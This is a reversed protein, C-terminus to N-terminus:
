INGSQADLVLQENQASESKRTKRPSQLTPSVPSSTARKRSKSSMVSPINCFEIPLNVPTSARGGCLTLTDIGEYVLLVFM